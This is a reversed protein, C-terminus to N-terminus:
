KMLKQNKESAGFCAMYAPLAAPVLKVPINLTDLGQSPEANYLKESSSDKLNLYATIQNVEFIKLSLV